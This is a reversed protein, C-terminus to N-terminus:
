STGGSTTASPSATAAETAGETAAGPTGTTAAAEDTTEAVPLVAFISGTWTVSLTPFHEETHETMTVTDVKVARTMDVEIRRVLDVVQFYGGSVTMQTPIQGLATKEQNTEPAGEVLEPEGFTMQTIEVGASDAAQQLARLTEPQAPEDPIYERLRELESQYRVENDQIERLTAIRGQVEQQENELQATQDLYGQHEVRRPQYLVYWFAATLLVAVAVAILPAHRTM